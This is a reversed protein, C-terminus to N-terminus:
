LLSNMMDNHLQLLLARALLTHKKMKYLLHSENQKLYKFLKVPKKFM